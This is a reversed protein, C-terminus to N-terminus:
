LLDWLIEFFENYPEPLVANPDHRSQEKLWDDIMPVKCHSFFKKAMQPTVSCLAEHHVSLWNKSGNHSLRKLAKKYEGFMYEIPNLEPSYPATYILLAGAGEIIDRVRTSNHISANDMIVISNPENQIARGLVPVVYTELYEEFRDGDVTGREPNQDVSSQEREVIHCAQKVFGEWNCAGILSYRKDFERVMASLIIPTVGRPSLARRRRSASQDKASEDLFLLQRPHNMRDNLRTHYLDVEEQQQQKARFVAVQLSYGLVRLKRWITSSSWMEGTERYLETQIEDLYLQPQEISIRMLADMHEPKFYKSSTMRIGSITPRYRKSKAPVEGYKQHYSIWRRLTEYSVSFGCALRAEQLMLARWRYRKGSKYTYIWYDTGMFDMVKKVAANQITFDNINTGQRKTRQNRISPKKPTPTVVSTPASSATHDM